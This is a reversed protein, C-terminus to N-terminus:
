GMDFKPDVILRMNNFWTINSAKRDEAIRERAEEVSMINEFEYPSRDNVDINYKNFLMTWTAPLVFEKFRVLNIGVSDYSTQPDVFTDAKQYKVLERNESDTSEVTQCLEYLTRITHRIDFKDGMSLCLEILDRGGITSRPWFHEATSCFNRDSPDDVKTFCRLSMLGTKVEPLDFVDTGIARGAVAMFNEYEETGEVINRSYYRNCKDVLSHHFQLIKEHFKAFAVRERTEREQQQVMEKRKKVADKKHQKIEREIQEIKDRWPKLQIGNSVRKGRYHDKWLTINALNRMKAELKWPHRELEEVTVLFGKSM